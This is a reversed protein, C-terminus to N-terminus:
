QVAFLVKKSIITIINPTTEYGANNAIQTLNKQMRVMNKDDVRKQLENATAEKPKYYSNYNDWVEEEFTVEKPKPGRKGVTHRWINNSITM